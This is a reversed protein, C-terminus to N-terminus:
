VAVFVVQPLRVGPADDVVLRLVDLCLEVFQLRPLSPQDGSLGEELVKWGRNRARLGVGVALERQRDRSVSPVPDNCAGRALRILLLLDVAPEHPYAEIPLGAFTEHQVVVVDDAGARRVRRPM